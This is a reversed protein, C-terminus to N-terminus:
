AAVQKLARRREVARRSNEAGTVPELHQPNFCGRNSCLHDIALGAPIPGVFREYSFRHLYVRRGRLSIYRYGHGNDFRSKPIWCGSETIIKSALIRPMPDYVRSAVRRRMADAVKQIHEPTKKMVKLHHGIKFRRNVRVFAGCGCECTRDTMQHRARLAPGRVPMGRRRRDKAAAANRCEDCMPYQWGNSTIGRERVGCTRCPKTTM